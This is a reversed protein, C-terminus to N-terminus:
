PRLKQRPPRPRNSPPAAPNQGTREDNTASRWEYGCQRRECAGYDDAMYDFRKHGCKPCKLMNGPYPQATDPISPPRMRAKRLQPNNAPDLTWTFWSAWDDPEDPIADLTLQESPTSDKPTTSVKARMPKARAVPRQLVHTPHGARPTRLAAATHTEDRRHGESDTGVVGTRKQVDYTSQLDHATM